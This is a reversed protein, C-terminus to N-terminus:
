KQQLLEKRNNELEKVQTNLQEQLNALINDAYETTGIRIEQANERANKIIMDAKKYAEQTIQHADIKERAKTDVENLRTDAEKEAESLIKDKQQVIEDAEVLSDPLIKKIDELILMIEESDVMVRKSFPVSGGETICEEIEEILNFIENM